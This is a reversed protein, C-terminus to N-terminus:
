VINVVVFFEKGSVIRLSLIQFKKGMKDYLSSSLLIVGIPNKV